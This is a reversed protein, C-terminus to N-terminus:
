VKSLVDDVKEKIIKKYNEKLWEDAHYMFMGAPIGQTYVIEDTMPDKYTWYLGKKIGTESQKQKSLMKAPRITEGSNYPNLDFQGKLVHPSAKGKDGTGFEEYLLSDGKAVVRYGKETKEYYFRPRDHSEFPVNNYFEEAKEKTQKALDEIASPMEKTLM